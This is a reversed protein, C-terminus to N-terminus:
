RRGKVANRRVSVNVGKKAAVFKGDISCESMNLQRRKQLKDGIATLVKELTGDTSGQQFRRHCTQYPPSKKPLDRWPAGTCLVWLIVDLVERNGRWPRGRRHIPLEPLLPKLCQWEKERLEM